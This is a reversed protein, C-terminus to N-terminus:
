FDQSKGEIIAQLMAETDDLDDESSSEDGSGSSGQDEEGAEEDDDDDDEVDEQDENSDGDEEEVQLPQWEDEFKVRRTNTNSKNKGSAGAQSPVAKVIVEASQKQPVKVNHVAEGRTKDGLTLVGERIHFHADVSELFPLGLLLSIRKGESPCVFAWTERKVGDVNVHFSVWHKLVNTRGDATTMCLNTRPLLLESIPRRKLSLHQVLNPYMLNIDSGQDAMVYDRNIEWKQGGKKKSVQVPLSWARHHRDKLKWRAIEGSLTRGIDLKRLSKAAASVNDTTTAVKFVEAEVSGTTTSNNDNSQLAGSGTAANDKGKKTARPMQLLKKVESRFHPSLQALWLFPLVVETDMLKKLVDIPPKGEMGKIAQNTRRARKAKTARARPKAIKRSSDPMDTDEEQPEDATDDDLRARKRANGENNMVEMADLVAMITETLDEGKEKESQGKNDTVLRFVPTDQPDDDHNVEVYDCQEEDTNYDLDILNTRVSSSNRNRYAEAHERIINRLYEQEERPLPARDCDRAIHGVRQGCRACLPNGREYQYPTQGNVYPNTSTSNFATTNSSYAQQTRSGNGGRYQRSQPPPGSNDPNGASTFSSGANQAQNQSAQDQNTSPTSIVTALPTISPSQNQGIPNFSYLRDPDTAQIDAVVKGNSLHRAHQLVSDPVREGKMIYEVVQKNLAAEQQERMSENYKEEMSIKRQEAEAKLWAGKLTRGSEYDYGTMKLRLKHDQLGSIFAKISMDMIGLEARSLGTGHAIDRSGTQKLKLLMVQYYDNLSQSSGQKVSLIDGVPTYDEEDASPFLEQLITQFSTKSTLPTDDNLNQPALLERATPDQKIRRAAEGEICSWLEEIWDAPTRESGDPNNGHAKKWRRYWKRFDQGPAGTYISDQGGSLIVTTPAQTSSTGVSNGLDIIGEGGVTNGGGTGAMINPVFVPALVYAVPQRSTDPGPLVPLGNFHWLPQPNTRVGSATAATAGRSKLRLPLTTTFTPVLNLIHRGPTTFSM